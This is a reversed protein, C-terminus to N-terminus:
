TSSVVMDSPLAVPAFVQPAIYQTASGTSRPSAEQPPPPPPVVDSATAAAAAAAGAMVERIAVGDEMWYPAVAEIAHVDDSALSQSKYSVVDVDPLMVPAVVACALTVDLVPQVVGTKVEVVWYVKCHVLPVPSLVWCATVTVTVGTGTVACMEGAGVVMVLPSVEMMAQAHVLLVAQVIVPVPAGAHSGTPPENGVGLRVTSVTYVTVHMWVALPPVACCLAVTATAAGPAGVTVKVTGADGIAYLVLTGMEHVDVPAVEHVSAPVPAGPLVYPGFAM